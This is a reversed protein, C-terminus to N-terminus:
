RKKMEEISVAVMGLPAQSSSGHELEAVYPLPNSVKATRDFGAGSLELTWAERAAGTDVPTKDKVRQLLERGMAEVKREYAQEVRRDFKRLQEAFSSM